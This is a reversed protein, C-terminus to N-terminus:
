MGKIYLVCCKRAIFHADLTKDTKWNRSMRIRIDTSKKRAKEKRQLRMTNANDRGAKFTRIESLIDSFSSPPYSSSSYVSLSFLVLFEMRWKGRERCFVECSIAVSTGSSLLVSLCARMCECVFGSGVDKNSGMSTLLAGSFLSLRESLAGFSEKWEKRTASMQWM